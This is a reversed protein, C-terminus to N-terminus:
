MTAFGVAGRDSEIQSEEDKIIFGRLFTMIATAFGRGCSNSSTAMLTNLYLV